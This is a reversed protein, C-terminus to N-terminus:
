QGWYISVFSPTTEWWPARLQSESSHEQEWVPSLSAKPLSFCPVLVSQSLGIELSAKVECKVTEGKLCSILLGWVSFSTFYYLSHNNSQQTAPATAAAALPSNCFSYSEWYVKDEDYEYQEGTHTALHSAPKLESNGDSGPHVKNQFIKLWSSFSAILRNQM